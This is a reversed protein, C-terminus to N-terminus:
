SATQRMGRGKLQLGQCRTLVASELRACTQSSSTYAATRVSSSHTTFIWNHTPRRQQRRQTQKNPTYIFCIVHCRTTTAHCNHKNRHLHTRAHKHLTAANQQHRVVRPTVLWRCGIGPPCLGLTVRIIYWSQKLSHVPIECFWWGQRSANSTWLHVLARLSHKGPPGFIITVGSSVVMTIPRFVSQLITVIFVCCQIWNIRIEIQRLKRCRGNVDQQRLAHSHLNVGIYRTIM